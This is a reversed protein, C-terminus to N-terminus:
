DFWPPKTEAARYTSVLIKIKRTVGLIFMSETQVMGTPIEIMPRAIGLPLEGLIEIADPVPTTLDIVVRDSEEPLKRHEKVLPGSRRMKTLVVAPVAEAKRKQTM